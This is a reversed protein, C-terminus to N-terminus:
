SMGPIGTALGPFFLILVIVIAILICFPIGGKVVTQFTVEPPSVGKMAFLAMGVPPTFQGLQVIILFLVAFWVENIEFAHVLPMFLPLCIMMTASESVFLDIVFAIALMVLLIAMPSQFMGTIAVVAARSAGTLSLVQSFGASSAIITLLMVTNRLSGILTQVLLKFSFKRYVIALIYSAVAGIAAAETTTGIGLFITGIVTLMILCLPLINRCFEKLKEAPTLVDQEDENEAAPALSPNRLCSIIVYALFFFVLLTGPLIAGLLINPVSIGSIGGMLVALNSPPIVMALSGSAMISGTTIKMCYSRRQMEPMMLSGFMVINALSSGSLAAFIGGGILTIVSLRGPVRRVLKALTDMTQTIIGSRFFVEGMVIFFPIATFTFTSLQSQMGLVWQRIGAEGFMLFMTGGSVAMFSFAIPFGTFMILLLSGIFLLLIWQWEM